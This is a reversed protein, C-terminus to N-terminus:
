LDLKPGFTRFYSGAAFCRYSNLGLRPKTRQNARIEKPADLDIKQKSINKKSYALSQLMEEIDGRSLTRYMINTRFQPSDPLALSDCERWANHSYM